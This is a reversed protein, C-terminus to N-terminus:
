ARKGGGMRGEVINRWMVGCVCPYLIISLQSVYCVILLSPLLSFPSPSPHSSYPVTCSPCIVDCSSVTWLCLLDHHILHHHCVSPTICSHTHPLAAPPMHYYACMVSLPHPLFPLSASSSPHHFAAPPPLPIIGSKCLTEEKVMLINEYVKYVM